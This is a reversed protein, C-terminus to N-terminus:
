FRKYWTCQPKRVGGLNIDCVKNCHLKFVEVFDCTQNRLLGRIDDCLKTHTNYAERFKNTCMFDYIEKVREPWINMTVCCFTEFGLMKCGTLLTDHCMIIHCGDKLLNHATTIDDGGWLCGRFNPIAKTLLEWCRTMCVTNLVFHVVLHEYM